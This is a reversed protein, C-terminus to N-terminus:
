QKLNRQMHNGVFELAIDAISDAHGMVDKRKRIPYRSSSHKESILQYELSPSAFVGMVVDILQRNLRDIRM